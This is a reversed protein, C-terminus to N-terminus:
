VLDEDKWRKKEIAKPEFSDLDLEEQQEMETAIPKAKPENGGMRELEKQIAKQEWENDLQGVGPIGYVSLYHFLVGIGWGLMPWFFWWNGFSTIANLLFFFGGMVLYTSLHEFFEKKAKVRKKAQLYKKEDM